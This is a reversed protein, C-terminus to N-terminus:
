PSENWDAKRKELFAKMGEQGEKSIRFGAILQSTFADVQEPDTENELRDLMRKVGKLALPGNSLLTRILQDTTEALSGTECLRHFLGAELAESAPISRGTLMWDSCRGPGAKRLVHPSITAPVLGLKVESFTLTATHEAVVLDSAAVLGIGGGMVRGQVSAITVAASERICRYLGSLELSENKLQEEEQNMGEHMWHLDAGASFHKGQSAIVLIRVGEEQNLIVVSETLDRIMQLDMANQVHPRNLTLCAVPGERKVLIRNSEKM